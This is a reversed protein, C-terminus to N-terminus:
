EDGVLDDYTYSFSKLGVTRYNMRISGLAKALSKMKDLPVAYNVNAQPEVPIPTLRPLAVTNRKKVEYIPVSTASREKKKATELSLKRINTYAIWQKTVDRMRTRARLFVNSTVDVSRKTTTLPLAVANAATFLIIGLFGSYQSHWQPWDDTGWGSVPTKDAALVIRGNCSVYWGFRKDGELSEDPTIDEPPPAAMGGIIEVTVEENDTDDVYEIRIPAYENSERLEIALGTITEGNLTINLGKHLHLSYDRAITRRLNQLFLPNDFATSAPPTLDDIIVKVGTEDLASDESIDFDWPLNDDELWTDVLIPVFFSQTSGDDEIYTSKVRINRGIKFAARKMGIGYVGIGYQEIAHSSSRGFSFAYNVADDFTMGGCNDLIEFHDRTASISITYNALSTDEELSVRKSGESKWAGDISNDILDLISDELTIDRTIMSVFFSKTPNAQASRTFDPM